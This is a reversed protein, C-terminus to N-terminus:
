VFIFDPGGACPCSDSVEVRTWRGHCGPSIVNKFRTAKNDVGHGSCRDGLHPRTAKSECSVCVENGRQLKSTEEINSCAKMAKDVKFVVCYQDSNEEVVYSKLNQRVDYKDEQRKTQSYKGPLLMGTERLASSTSKHRRTSGSSRRGSESSKRSCQDGECIRSQSLDPCSVGGNSEPRVVTRTRTSKGTGCKNSCDSWDSWESVGCDIVGCYDKFDHCCDGMDLCGHDCYCPVDDLDMILSNLDNKQPVCETEKGDCCMKAARCSGGVAGVMCPVSIVVLIMASLNYMKFIYTDAISALNDGLRTV